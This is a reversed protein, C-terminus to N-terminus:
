LRNPCSHFLIYVYSYGFLWLILYVYVLRPIKSTKSLRSVLILLVSPAPLTIPFLAHIDM